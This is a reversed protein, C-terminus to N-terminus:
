LETSGHNCDIIVGCMINGDEAKSEKLVLEREKWM